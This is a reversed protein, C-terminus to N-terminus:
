GEDQERRETAEGTEGALDGLGDGGEGAAHYGDLDDSADDFLDM